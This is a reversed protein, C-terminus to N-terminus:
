PSTSAPIRSILKRTWAELQGEPLRGSTKYRIIGEHDILYYTPFSNVRWGKGITSESGDVWNAWTVTQSDVLQQLKSKSEAFVGLMVFPEDRLSKVLAREQSWMQQSATSWDAWFSLLVVRGRYSSLKMTTGDLSNAAIDMAPRGVALNKIEYLLEEAEIGLRQEPRRPDDSFYVIDSYENSVRELLRIMTEHETTSGSAQLALAAALSATGRIDRTSGTEAMRRLFIVVGPQPSERLSWLLNAFRPDTGYRDALRQAAKPLTEDNTAPVGPEAALKCLAKLADFGAPADDCEVSLAYLKEFIESAPHMSAKIERRETETAALTLVDNMEKLREDYDVLLSALRSDPETIQAFSQCDISSNQVLDVLHRVDIAFGFSGWAHSNVGIVHGLADLVPAGSLGSPSPATTQLWVQDARTSMGNRVSAPLEKPSCVTSIIGTSSTPGSLMAPGVCVVPSSVRRDTNSSLGLVTALAPVAELEAIALDTQLDWARLGKLRMAQRDRFQVQVASAGRLVHFSTVIKNADILFGVGSGIPQESADFTTLMVVGEQTVKVIEEVSRPSAINSAGGTATPGGMANSSGPIAARTNVGPTALRNAVNQLRRVYAMAGIAIAAALIANFAAFWVWLPARKQKRYEVYSSSHSM